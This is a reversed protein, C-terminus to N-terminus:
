LLVQLKGHFGFWPLIQIAPYIRHSIPFTPSFWPGVLISAQFYRKFGGHISNQDKSKRRLWITSM